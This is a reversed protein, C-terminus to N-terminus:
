KFPPSSLIIKDDAILGRKEPTSKWIISTLYLIILKVAALLSNTLLLCNLEGFHFFGDVTGFLYTIAFGILLNNFNWRTKKFINMFATPLPAYISTMNLPIPSRNM